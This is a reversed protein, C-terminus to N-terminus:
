VTSSVSAPFTKLAREMRNREASPVKAFAPTVIPMANGGKLKSGNDKYWDAIHQFASSPDECLKKYELRIWRERPIQDLAVQVDRRISQVQGVVQEVPELTKLVEYNPTKFSWWHREDGYIRRRSRLLSWASDIPDRDMFLFMAEPVAAAFRSIQHNIIKGKMALPKQCVEAFAALEYRFARYDQEHAESLNIGLDGDTPLHERWFFWFESPALMGGTKGADSTSTVIRPSVDSFEGRYDFEPNVLMEQVMAGFFPASWFRAIFNSPYGFAGSAALWQLCYTSGTRPAGVIFLMPWNGAEVPPREVSKLTSALNELLQDLRPNRRFQEVREAAESMVM